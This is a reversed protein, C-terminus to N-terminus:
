SSQSLFGVQSRTQPGGNKSVQPQDFRAPVQNHEPMASTFAQIPYSFPGRSVSSEARNGPPKKTTMKRPWDIGGPWRLAPLLAELLIM